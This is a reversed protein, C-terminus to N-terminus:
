IGDDIDDCCNRTLSKNNTSIDFKTKKKKTLFHIFNWFLFYYVMIVMDFILSCTHDLPHM